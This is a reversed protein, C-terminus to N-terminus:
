PRTVRVDDFRASAHTTGVAVGGSTIQADSAELQLTGNVYGKLSTGVAELRLTFWVDEQEDFGLGKTALRQLSGNAAKGIFLQGNSGSNVGLVYYTSSNLYRAFVNASYSTSQGGFDLVKVRAEVVQDDWCANSVNAVRLTNGDFQTQEYVNSDDDVVEWEGSTSTWGSADGDEFDDEFLSDPGAGGAGGGPAGGRAGGEGGGGGEGDELCGYMTTSGGSGGTASGGTSSGGKGGTASGGTSSGGKGGTASGGTASGGTASSGGTGGAGSGASGSTGGKSRGDDDGQDALPSDEAKACAAAIAIAGFAIHTLRDPRRVKTMITEVLAIAQLCFARDIRVRSDLRVVIERPNQNPVGRSSPRAVHGTHSDRM